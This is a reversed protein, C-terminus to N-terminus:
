RLQIKCFVILSAISVVFVPIAFPFEPVATTGIIMISGSSSPEIRLWSHTSNKYTEKFEIPNNNLQIGYPGGLLSNPIIVVIPATDDVTFSISKSGQEFGFKEIKSATIIQTMYNSKNWTATFENATAERVTYSLSVQGVPMSVVNDHIDNPIEKASVIISAPPLIITSPITSNYNLDWIGSTKKLIEANYTLTMRSAGLTDIKVQNGNQYASLANGKEDTVVLNSIKDSILPVVISSVTTRTDMKETVRAIGDTSLTITISDQVFEAHSSSLVFPIILLLTIIFFTFRNHVLLSHLELEKLIAPPM